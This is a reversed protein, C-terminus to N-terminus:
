LERRMEFHYFPVNRFGCPIPKEAITFGLWALWEIAKVNSAAVYNSLVPYLNLMEAVQARCRRLFHMAYDDLLSTGVMWPRGHDFLLGGIPAVGFMCIPVGDVTGTCAFRSLALGSRLVQGPTMMLAAFEIRDARRVNAAIAEIHDSTAPIVAVVRTM